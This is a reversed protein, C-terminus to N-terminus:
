EPRKLKEGNPGIQIESMKRGHKVHAEYAVLKGKKTLSETTQITGAGAAKKLAEQVPQPLSDFTVAEEVEVVNGLKDMLIERRRGNITLSVEYFTQGHEIERAFETITAGESERAVTKEVAAPLKDRSIKKEQAAVISCFCVAILGGICFAVLNRM